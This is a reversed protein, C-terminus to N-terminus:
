DEDVLVEDEEIKVIRELVEVAKWYDEFGRYREEVTNWALDSLHNLAERPTM